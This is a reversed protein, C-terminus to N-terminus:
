QDWTVCYIKNNGRGYIIFVGYIPFIESRNLFKRAVTGQENTKIPHLILSRWWCHHVLGPPPREWLSPIECCLTNFSTFTYCTYIALVHVQFEANLATKMTFLSHFNSSLAKGKPQWYWCRPKLAKFPYQKVRIPPPNKEWSYIM